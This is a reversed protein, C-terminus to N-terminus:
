QGYLHDVVDNAFPTGIRVLADAPAAISRITIFLALKSIVGKNAGNDCAGTACVSHCM